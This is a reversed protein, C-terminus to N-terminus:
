FLMMQRRELDLRNVAKDFYEKNIEIGDFYLGKLRHAAIASSGSGLHTDIIKDGPNTYRQLIAIYLAIPKQCPHITQETRNVNQWIIDLCIVKKHFSCSAIECMSLNAGEPVRNNWVIAGGKSTFCNFYNAGFIIQNKSVRILQDFYRQNPTSNNWKASHSSNSKKYKLTGSKKCGHRVYKKTWDGIGYPPDVLALDYYNNPTNKMIDMCNSHILSIM